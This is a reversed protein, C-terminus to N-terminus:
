RDLVRPAVAYRLMQALEDDLRGVIRKMVYRLDTQKFARDIEAADITPNAAAVDAILELKLAIGDTRAVIREVVDDRTIGRYETLYLRAEPASFPEIQQTAAGPFLTEFGPIRTRPDDRGALVLRLAPVAQKLEALQELLPVLPSQERTSGGLLLAEELTDVVIVARRGAPLEQLGATLREFVDQEVDADTAPTASPRRRLRERQGPYQALLENLPADPLQSDLQAAIELLMLWPERTAVLPELSDFDLRACADGDPACRRAILWRLHSTKGMGGGGWLALVRGHRGELLAELATRSAEPILLRGSRYWDDLWMARIRLRRRYENRLLALEPGLVGLRDGLVDLLEQCRALDDRGDAEEYLTEFTGVADEPNVILEHFLAEVEEGKRRRLLTLAAASLKELDEPVDEPDGHDRWWRLYHKRRVAAPLRWCDRRGPVREVSGARILDSLHADPPDGPLADRLAEVLEDDFIRLAACRKLLEREAGGDLGLLMSADVSEGAALRGVIADVDLDSM